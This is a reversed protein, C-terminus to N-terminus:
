IAFKRVAQGDFGMSEALLGDFFDLGGPARDLSQARLGLLCEDLLEFLPGLGLGLFLASLLALFLAFRRFALGLGLAATLLGLLGLTATFGFCGAFLLGPFGFGVFSRRRRSFLSSAASGAHSLLM